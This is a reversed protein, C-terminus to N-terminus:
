PYPSNREFPTKMTYSEEFRLIYSKKFSSSNSSGSSDRFESRVWLLDSLLCIWLTGLVISSIRRLRNRHRPVSLPVQWVSSISSVHRSFTPQMSLYNQIHMYRQMLTHYDFLRLKLTSRQKSCISLTLRLKRMIKAKEVTRHGPSRFTWYNILNKEYINFSKKLM